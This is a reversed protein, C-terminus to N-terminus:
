RSCRRDGLRKGREDIMRECAAKSRWHAMTKERASDGKTVDRTTTRLASVGENNRSIPMLVIDDSHPASGRATLRSTCDDARNRALLPM